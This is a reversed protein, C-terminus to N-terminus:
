IENEGIKKLNNNIFVIAFWAVTHMISTNLFIMGTQDSFSFHFKWFCKWVQISKFVIFYLVWPNVYEFTCNVCLKQIYLPYIIHLIYNNECFIYMITSTLLSKMWRFCVWIYMYLHLIRVIGCYSSLTIFIQWKWCIFCNRIYRFKMWNLYICIQM